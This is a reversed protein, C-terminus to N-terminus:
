EQVKSTSGRGRGDHLGGGGNGFMEAVASAPVAHMELLVALVAAHPVHLSVGGDHEVPVTRNCVLGGGACVPLRPPLPPSICRYGGARQCSPSLPPSLYM